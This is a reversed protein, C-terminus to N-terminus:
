RGGPINMAPAQARRTTPGQSFAPIATAFRTEGPLRQSMDALKAGLIPPAQTRPGRVFNHGIPPLDRAELGERRLKLKTALDVVARQWEIKNLKTHEPDAALMQAAEAMDGVDIPARHEPLRRLWKVYMIAAARNLPEMHMNPVAGTVVVSSEEYLTVERGSGLFCDARCLYCPDREQVISNDDHRMAFVEPLVEFETGALLEADANRKKAESKPEDSM